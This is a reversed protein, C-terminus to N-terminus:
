CSKLLIKGTNNDAYLRIGSAWYEAVRLKVGLKKELHSYDSSSSILDPEEASAKKILSIANDLPTNLEVSNCSEIAIHKIARFNNRQLFVLAVITILVLIIIRKM